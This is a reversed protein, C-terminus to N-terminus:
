PPRQCPQQRRAVDPDLTPTSLLKPGGHNKDSIIVNNVAPGSLSERRTDNGRSSADLNMRHSPALSARAPAPRPIGAEYNINMWDYQRGKKGGLFRRSTANPDMELRQERAIRDRERKTLAKTAPQGDDSAANNLVTSGTASPSGSTGLHSLSKPARREPSETLDIEIRAKKGVQNGIGDERSDSGSALRKRNLSSDLGPQDSSVAQSENRDPPRRSNQLLPNTIVPTQANRHADHLPGVSRRSEQM